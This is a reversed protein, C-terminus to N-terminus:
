LFFRCVLFHVGSTMIVLRPIVGTKESSRRLTPLLNLAMLFTGVVNIAITREMGEIESYTRTAVGANECVIDLRELKDVRLCFEKVSDFNGIDVQWVECVGERGTSTSISRAAEEGKSVSRCALIVKAAGLRVFHRAAELGLGINAGTVIVTQGDFSTTPYALPTWQKKLFSWLSM